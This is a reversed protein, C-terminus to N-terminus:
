PRNVVRGVFDEPVPALKLFGAMAVCDVGVERCASFVAEGFAADGTAGSPFGERRIV